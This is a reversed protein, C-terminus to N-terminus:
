TFKYYSHINIDDNREAEEPSNWLCLMVYYVYIESVRRICGTIDAVTFSHVSSVSSGGCYGPPLGTVIGAPVLM